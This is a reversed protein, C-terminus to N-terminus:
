DKLSLVVYPTNRYVSGTSATSFFQETILVCHAAVADLEMLSTMFPLWIAVATVAAGLIFCNCHLMADHLLISNCWTKIAAPNRNFIGPNSDKLKQIEKLSPLIKSIIHQKFTTYAINKEEATWRQRVCKGFPSTSRKKKNKHNVQSFSLSSENGLSNQETNNESTNSEELNLSDNFKRKNTNISQKESEQISNSDHSLISQHFNNQEIDDEEIKEDSDKGHVIELLKSVQFIERTLIPQRYHEKHIKDAHGMFNALDSVEYDKLNLNTCMTAIHKRLNTGQLRDPNLAGCEMSYKRMLDCARLYRYDGKIIGPIGFLYPNKLHVNATKRHSLLLLLNELMQKHLLVPVTRGLKGRMTYRVYKKAAKKEDNSLSLYSTGITNENVSEYNQFDEILAREIEGPRRRNFLNLSFAQKLLDYSTKLTDNLYTELKKIDDQTPLLKRSYRKRRHQTEIATRAISFSYDETLLNLFQEALERKEKDHRKIMITICRKWLQKLLTGLSTAVSLTKFGTGSENLGALTRVAKLCNDYNNPVFITFPDDIKDNQNKMELLLRGILRLKQRIMDYFHPDQFKECLKNAYNIALEDYRIVRSVNDNRLTPFVRQRLIKCASEHIRGTIKTSKALITRNNTSNQKSCRRYHHRIASKFYNGKCQSCISFDSVNKNYKPRRMVKLEREPRGKPIYFIDKVEKVNRHKRSLHRSLKSQETQCYICFDKKNGSEVTKVFMNTDDPANHGLSLSMELTTNKSTKLLNQNEDKMLTKSNNKDEISNESIDSDPVYSSDNSESISNTHSITDEDKEQINKLNFRPPLSVDTVICEGM